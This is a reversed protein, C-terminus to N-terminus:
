TIFHKSNLLCGHCRLFARNRIRGLGRRQWHVGKFTNHEKGERRGGKGGGGNGGRGSQQGQGVGQQGGQGGQQGQQGQGGQGGQQGQQGQGGQGQQNPASNGSQLNPQGNPSALTSPQGLPQNAAKNGQAGKNNTFALQSSPMGNQSLQNQLQTGAQNAEALQKKVM